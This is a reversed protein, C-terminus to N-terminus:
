PSVAGPGGPDWTPDLAALIGRILRQFRPAAEQGAELVEQHSLPRSSIGAGPNTILSIGLVRMGRARAVIVEPVTSMGVADGGLLGIMRVEAPTEYSPGSVAAYVGEELPIGLEKATRRALARLDADYAVSMDPFRPEGPIGPGVLPNRGMLNLHDRILMLTGLGFDPNVGGAANTVLLTSVGLLAAARVPALVVGAPHGEYFHFRGAQVLVRRGELVGAVFRGQHGGVGAPPLGPLDQFPISIPEEVADALAGLGSGLVALIEPTWPLRGRLAEATAEIPEV